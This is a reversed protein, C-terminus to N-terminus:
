DDAQSMRMPAPRGLFAAVTANFTEPEEQDPFHPSQEFMALTAGAIGEVFRESMAFPNIADKRGWVILTPVQIRDLQGDLTEQRALFTARIRNM